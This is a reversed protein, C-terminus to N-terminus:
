QTACPWDRLADGVLAETKEGLRPRAKSDLYTAIIWVGQDFDKASLENISLSVALRLKNIRTVYNPYDRLDTGRCDLKLPRDMKRLFAAVLSDYM